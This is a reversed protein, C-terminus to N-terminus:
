SPLEGTNIYHTLESLSSFELGDIIEANEVVSKEWDWDEHEGQWLLYVLNYPDWAFLQTVGSDNPQYGFQSQYYIRGNHTVIEPFSAYIEENAAWHAIRAGLLFFQQPQYALTQPHSM